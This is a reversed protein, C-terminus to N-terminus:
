ADPTYTLTDLDVVKFKNNLIIVAWDNDDTCQFAVILADFVVDPNRTPQYKAPIKM